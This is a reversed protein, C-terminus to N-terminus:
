PRQRTRRERASPVPGCKSRPNQLVSHGSSRFMMLCWSLLTGVQRTFHIRGRQITDSSPLKSSPHAATPPAVATSSRQAEAAGWHRVSAGEMGREPAYDWCGSGAAASPRDPRSLPPPSSSRWVRAARRSRHTRVAAQGRSILSENYTEYLVGNVIWRM